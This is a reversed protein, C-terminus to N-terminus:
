KTQLLKRKRFALDQTLMHTRMVQMFKKIDPLQTSKELFVLYELSFTVVTASTSSVKFTFSNFNLDRPVEVRIKTDREITNRLKDSESKKSNFFWRGSSISYLPIPKNKPSNTLLLSYIETPVNSFVCLEGSQVFFLPFSSKCKLSFVDGNRLVKEVKSQHILRLAGHFSPSLEAGEVTKKAFEVLNLYGEDSLGRATFTNQRKPSSTSKPSNTESRTDM